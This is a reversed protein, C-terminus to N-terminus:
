TSPEAPRSSSTTAWLEGSSARPLTSIVEKLSVPDSDGCRLEPSVPQTDRARTTAADTLGVFPVTREEALLATVPVYDVDTVPATSVGNAADTTPQTDEADSTDTRDDTQYRHETAM